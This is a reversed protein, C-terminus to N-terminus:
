RGNILREKALEYWKEEIEYGLGNRGLFAAAELTTGSGMFPDLVVQGPLTYIAILRMMLSLPKEHPHGNKTLIKDDHVGTYNDWHLDTNFVTSNKKIIIHEVFNGTNKSYNKTSPTKIWHWRTDPIFFEHHPYCFLIINGKCIRELDILMFENIEMDYPPDGIIIDVSDTQIAAVSEWFDALRIVSTTRKHQIADGTIEM